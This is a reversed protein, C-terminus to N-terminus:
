DEEEEMKSAEDATDENVEVSKSNKKVQGPCRLHSTVARHDGGVDISDNSEADRCWRM